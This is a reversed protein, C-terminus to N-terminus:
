QHNSWNLYSFFHSHQYLKNELEIQSNSDVNIYMGSVVIAENPGCTEFGM